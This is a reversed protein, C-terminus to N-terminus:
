VYCNTEWPTSIKTRFLIKKKLTVQLGVFFYNTLSTGREKPLLALNSNHLIGFCARRQSVTALSHYSLRQQLAPNLLRDILCTCSTESQHPLCCERRWVISYQILSHHEDSWCLESVRPILAFSSQIQEPPERHDLVKCTRKEKLKDDM